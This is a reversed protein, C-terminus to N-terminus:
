VIKIHDEYLEYSLLWDCIQFIVIIDNDITNVVIYDKGRHRISGTGFYKDLCNLRKADIFDARIYYDRLKQVEIAIAGNEEFEKKRQARNDQGDFALYVDLGEALTKKGPLLNSVGEIVLCEELTKYKKISVIRFRIIETNGKENIDLFDNVNLNGWTKGNKRVEKKKDGSFIFGAWPAAIEMKWIKEEKIKEMREM